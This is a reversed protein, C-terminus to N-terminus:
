ANLCLDDKTIYWSVSKQSEFSSTTVIAAYLARLKAICYPHGDMSIHVSLVASILDRLSTSLIGTLMEINKFCHLNRLCLM